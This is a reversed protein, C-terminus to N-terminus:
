PLLKKKVEWLRSKQLQPGVVEGWALLFVFAWLLLGTPATLWLVSTTECLWNIKTGGRAQWWSQSISSLILSFWVSGADEKPPPAKSIPHPAEKPNSTRQTHSSCIASHCMWFLGQLQQQQWKSGVWSVCFFFSPHILHEVSRSINVM